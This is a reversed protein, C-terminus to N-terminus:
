ICGAKFLKSLETCDPDILDVPKEGSENEAETNAGLSLLYSAIEPFGDSCAMHLPTWGDEDRQNVDAGYKLLLKVAELNGALVAEHLAAMGSPFLTEVCVKRTRIFRGIQELEGCRVVDQFIIENPFHVTRKSPTISRVPAPNERAQTRRSSSYQSPLYTSTSKYSPTYHSPTYHTGSYQSPTYRSTSIYSPTYHSSAYHTPAHYTPTYQSHRSYTSVPIHYNYKM